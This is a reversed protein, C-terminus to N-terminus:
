QSIVQTPDNSSDTVDLAEEGRLQRALRHLRAIDREITTLACEACFNEPSRDTTVELRRDGRKVRHRASHQCNHARLAEGVVARKLISKIRAM